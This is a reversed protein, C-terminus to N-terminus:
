ATQKSPAAKGPAAKDQEPIPPDATRGYEFARITWHVAGSISAIAVLGGFVAIFLQLIGPLSTFGDRGFWAGAAIVPLPIAWAVGILLARTSRGPHRRLVTLGALAGVAGAAAARAALLPTLDFSGLHGGAGLYGFAAALGVAGSICAMALAPGYRAVDTFVIWLGFAAVVVTLLEFMVLFWPTVDAILSAVVTAAASVGVAACILGLLAYAWKPPPEPIPTEYEPHM